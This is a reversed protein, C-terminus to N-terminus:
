DFVAPVASEAKARRRALWRNLLLAIGIVLYTEHQFKQVLLLAPVVDRQLPNYLMKRILSIRDRLEYRILQENLGYLVDFLCLTLFGIVWAPVSVWLKIRCRAAVMIAILINPVNLPDRIVSFFFYFPVSVGFGVALTPADVLGFTATLAGFRYGARMLATVVISAIGTASFMCGLYWLLYNFFSDRRPPVAGTVVPVAADPIV